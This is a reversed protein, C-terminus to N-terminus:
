YEELSTCVYKLIKSENALHQFYVTWFFLKRNMEIFCACCIYLQIRRLHYCPSPCKHLYILNKMEVFGKYAKVFCDDELLLDMM